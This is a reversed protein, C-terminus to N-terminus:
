DKKKNDKKEQPGAGMVSMASVLLAGASVGIWMRNKWM